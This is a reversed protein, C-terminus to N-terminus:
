KAAAASPQENPKVENRLMFSIAHYGSDTDYLIGGGPAFYPALAEFPPLKNQDMVNRWRKSTLTTRKRRMSRRRTKESTLLEYWQRMSEEERGISFLVPTVGATERGIVASTRAFDNSDVLRDATGDRAAICLEFRQCSTGIFLYGDMIGVFPNFPREAEPNDAQRPSKIGYYTVNGFHREEFLEPYKKMVTTLSEAAANEDVLEAAFVHQQGQFHAPRDFGIMWTYRGKLNDIVDKLFDIGLKDSISGQVFKDVSGKYRYQDVLEVIRDYTTRLNENWTIYSQLALPVFPQPATEGAQFAPLLMVGSRPNELLVHFQALSDYEDTSYTVAGGIAMLGDVGLSPFLGLVFQLGTNGRGVNHVLEIPDIFFVLQPPPDQPRRCQKLITVFRDNQALSRGPVFETAEQKAKEDAAAADGDKKLETSATKEVPTAEAAPVASAGGTEGPHDWHWLVNRIVNPDTAVVITNEREFVGFMRNERDKDRVITVEVDGIKEKSFDAGKQQALDLAKDLLKDAVSAEDGQDIMLLLAPRKEPRAVVAFAVEGKPLKKLDDWSIGLKSEVDKAYLESAKGYLSEVFPRLQPDQLMRGTSTQQIREGLEQANPVRVFVVSEEPFLKMASPREAQAALAPVLVSLAVFLRASRCGFTRSVPRAVPLRM